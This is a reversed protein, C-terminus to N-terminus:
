GKGGEDTLFVHFEKIAGYNSDCGDLGDLFRGGLVVIDVNGDDLTECRSVAELNCPSISLASNM